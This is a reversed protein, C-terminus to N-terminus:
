INPQTRFVGRIGNFRNTRSVLIEIIMEINGVFSRYGGLLEMTLKFKEGEKVDYKMIFHCVKM